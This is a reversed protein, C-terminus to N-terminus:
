LNWAHVDRIKIYAILYILIEYINRVYYYITAESNVSVQQVRLLRDM